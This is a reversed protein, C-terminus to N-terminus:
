LKGEEQDAQRKPDTDAQESSPAAARVEGQHERLFQAVDKSARLLIEIYAIDVSSVSALARHYAGLAAILEPHKDPIVGFKETLCENIREALGDLTEQQDEKTTSSIMEQWLLEIAYRAPHDRRLGASLQYLQNALPQWRSPRKHSVLANAKLLRAHLVDLSYQETLLRIITDFERSTVYAMSNREPQM